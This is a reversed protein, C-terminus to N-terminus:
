PMEKIIEWNLIPPDIGLKTKIEWINKSLSTINKYTM